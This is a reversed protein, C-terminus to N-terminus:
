KTAEPTYPLIVNLSFLNGEQNMVVNGGYKNTVYRISKSGYGHLSKNEKRTLPLGDRFTVKHTCTNEIHITLFRNKRSVNLRILRTGVPEEQEAEIANDLANGFLSCIDMDEMFSLAEPDVLYNLSIHRAECLLGKETLITDLTENGTKAFRGYVNVDKKLKEINKRREEEDMNELANLQNKLDHSRINIIDITEKALKNEKAQEKLMHELADKETELETQKRTLAIVRPIGFHVLLAFVMAIIDLLLVPISWIEDADILSSLIWTITICAISTFSLLYSPKEDASHKRGRFYLYFFLGLYSLIYYTFYLLLGVWTDADEPVAHFTILLLDWIIHQIGFAAFGIAIYTLAKARYISAAALICYATVILYVFNYPGVNLSPIFYFGALGAGLFLVLWLYWLKRKPYKMMLLMTPTYVEAFFSAFGFILIRYFSFM